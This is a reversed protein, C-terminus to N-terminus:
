GAPAPRLAKALKLAAARDIPSFRGLPEAIVLLGDRSLMARGDVVIQGPRPGHVFGFPRERGFEQLRVTGYDFRVFTARRLVAGNPAKAGDTGVEVSRLPRGHYRPGLWLPVAGLVDRAARLNSKAAHVLSNPFPPFSRGDAAGGDPVVFSVSKGPLDDLVSYVEEYWLRGHVFTRKAVPRHTLVDLAVRDGEARPSRSRGNVLSQLWIVQHGRLTGRGIVRKPDFPWRFGMKELVFPTPPLCFRRRSDPAGQCTQGVTDFEVRGDIRGVVREFGSKPDWWVELVLPAPRERGTAVDVISQPQPQPPYEAIRAHAVPGRSQVLHFGAPVASSTSGGGGTLVIASSAAVAIAVALVAAAAYMLRRRRARRRAEEILAVLEDHSPQPTQPPATVTM